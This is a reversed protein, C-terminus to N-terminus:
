EGSTRVGPPLQAQAVADQRHRLPTKLGIWSVIAAVVTLAALVMIAPQYSGTRDYCWAGLQVSAFAGLQHVFFLVGFVQGKIDSGYREFCFMSTLVVTGLYSAGFVAAFGLTGVGSGGVLLMLMALSRLMYFIGLLGRKDYRMALWGTALGSVLELVGLLSM